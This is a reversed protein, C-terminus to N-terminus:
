PRKIEAGSIRSRADPPETGTIMQYLVACLSYVDSEQTERKVDLMQELPVYPSKRNDRDSDEPEALTVFTGCM